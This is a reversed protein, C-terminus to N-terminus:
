KQFFVELNDIQQGSRICLEFDKKAWAAPNFFKSLHRNGDDCVLTVIQPRAGPFAAVIEGNQIKEQVDLALKFASAVHLASSSGVFLGENRILYLAMDYAEQDTIMYSDDIQGLKFNKTLWQLGIGEIMTRFPSKEKYGEREKSSFVTGYKVRMHLSSGQPDALCSTVTKSFSTKPKKKEKLYNSVGALTAGTGAGTIFYDINGKMQEWIEPGTNKYHGEYNSMNNFQNSYFGNPDDEAAKKGLQMFSDSDVINRSPVKHLECGVLKLIDYQNYTLCKIHVKFFIVKEQALDDNLYIKCSLRHIACM